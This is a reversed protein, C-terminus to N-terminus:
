LGSVDCHSFNNRDVDTLGTDLDTVGAPLEEAELVTDLWVTLHWGVLGDTTAIISEVGEERFSTSTFVNRSSDENVQFWRDNIFHASTSVPLQEVRFLQDRTLFICCVVKSTTVVSDSLLDDIQAQVANPLKCVVASAQLTKQHVVSTTAASARAESAQHELAETHIIAHYYFIM